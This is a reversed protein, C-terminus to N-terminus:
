CIFFSQVKLHDQVGRILFWQSGLDHWSSGKLPWSQVWGASTQLTGLVIAEVFIVYSCALMLVGSFFPSFSSCSPIVTDMILTFSTSRRFKCESLKVNLFHKNIYKNVYPIKTSSPYDIFQSTDAPEQVHNGTGGAREAECTIKLGHKVDGQSVLKKCRNQYCSYMKIMGFSHHLWDLLLFVRPPFTKTWYQTINHLWTNQRLLKHYSKSQLLLKVTCYPRGLLRPQM